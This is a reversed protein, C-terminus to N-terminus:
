IGQNEQGEQDNLLQLRYISQEHNVKSTLGEEEGGGVFAGAPPHFKGFLNTYVFWNYILLQTSAESVLIKVRM